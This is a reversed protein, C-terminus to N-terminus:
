SEEKRDDSASKSYYEEINFKFTEIQRKTVAGGIM